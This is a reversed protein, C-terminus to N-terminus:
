TVIKNKELIDLRRSVIDMLMNRFVDGIETKTKLNILDHRLGRILPIVVSLTPYKESSLEATMIQFTKLIHTCDLIIEWESANLYNLAQLLTSMIASLPTKINVLIKM